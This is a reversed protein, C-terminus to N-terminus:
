NADILGIDGDNRQYVVAARGTEANTFFFFTHSLLEMQMAAEEPTMPKISFQKAKVLRGFGGPNEEVDEDVAAVPMTGNMAPTHGNEHGRHRPHSRGVLRGKLRELQRTLKSIAVDLAAMQEPAAAKARVVHGHGVMTVECVEKASIRPNHEEIFRVEAREMGDLYRCLRRIKEEAALKVPGHVDVGGSSVAVDMRVQESM